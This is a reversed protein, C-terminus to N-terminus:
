GGVFCKGRLPEAVVVVVVVGIGIAVVVAVVVLSQVGLWCSGHLSQVQIEMKLELVVMWRWM